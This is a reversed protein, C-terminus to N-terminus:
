FSVKLAKIQEDQEQIKAMLKALLDAQKKSDQALLKTTQSSSSTSAMAVPQSSTSPTSATRNTTAKASASKGPKGVYKAFCITSRHGAKGCHNCM